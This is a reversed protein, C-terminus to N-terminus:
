PHLSFAPYTSPNEAPEPNEATLPPLNLRRAGNERLVPALVKALRGNSFATPHNSFDLEYEFDDILHVRSAEFQHFASEIAPRLQPERCYATVYIDYDGKSAALERLYGLVIKLRKEYLSPFLTFMLEDGRYRIEKYRVLLHRVVYERGFRPLWGFRHMAEHSWRTAAINDTQSIDDCIYSYVVADPHYKLAFAQTIRGMGEFNLGPIGFNFSEWKQGGERNLVKELQSALTQDQRMNMGFVFSDGVTAVRLTGAPKAVEHDRDRFGERNSSVRIEQYGHEHMYPVDRLNPLLRPMGTKDVVIADKRLETFNSRMPVVVLFVLLLILVVAVNILVVKVLSLLRQLTSRQPAPPEEPPAESPAASPGDSGADAPTEPEEPPM